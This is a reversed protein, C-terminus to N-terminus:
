SSSFWVLFSYWARNWALYIVAGFPPAWVLFYHRLLEEPTQLKDDPNPVVSKLPELKQPLPITNCQYILHSPNTNKLFSKSKDTSPRRLQTPKERTTSPTITLLPWERTTTHPRRM